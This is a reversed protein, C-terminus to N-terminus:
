MYTVRGQIGSHGGYAMKEYTNRRKSMLEIYENAQEETVEALSNVNYKEMLDVLKDGYKDSFRRLVEICEQKSM